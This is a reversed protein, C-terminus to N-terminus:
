STDSWVRCCGWTRRRPTRYDIDLTVSGQFGRRTVGARRKDKIMMGIAYPTDYYEDYYEQEIKLYVAGRRAKYTFSVPTVM